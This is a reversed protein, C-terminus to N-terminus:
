VKVLQWFERIVTLLKLTLETREILQETKGREERGDDLLMLM